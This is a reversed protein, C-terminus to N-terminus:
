PAIWAMAVSSTHQGSFTLSWPLRMSSVVPPLEPTSGRTDSIYVCM